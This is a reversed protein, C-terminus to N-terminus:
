KCFFVLGESESASASEVVGRSQQVSPSEEGMGMIVYLALCVRNM